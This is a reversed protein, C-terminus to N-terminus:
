RQHHGAPALNGHEGHPVAYQGATSAALGPTAIGAVLVAGAFAAALLRGPRVSGATGSGARPGGERRAETRGLWGLSAIIMLTLLLASLQTLNLGSTRPAAFAIAAVHVAAAGGLAYRVRRGGAAPEKALFVIAGALLATGWLAAAAGFLGLPQAPGAAAAFFSSAIALNVSGAGFGAFGTVLRVAAVADSAPRAPAAAAGPVAPGSAAFGSAAM